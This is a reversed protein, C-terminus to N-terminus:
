RPAVLAYNGNEAVRIQDIYLIRDPGTSGQYDPIYAGCKWYGVVPLGTDKHDDDYANGYGPRDVVQVGNVWAKNQAVSAGLHVFDLKFYFVFDIDQEGVTPALVESVRTTNGGNLNASRTVLRWDGNMIQLIIKQNKTSTIGNNSKHLQLMTNGIANSQYTGGLRYRAGIWFERGKIPTSDDWGPIKARLECRWQGTSRRVEFRCRRTGQYSVNSAQVATGSTDNSFNWRTGSITGSEWDDQFIITGTPPPEPDPPQTVAVTFQNSLTVLKLRVSDSAAKRVQTKRRRAV